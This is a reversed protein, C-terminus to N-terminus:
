LRVGLCPCSFRFLKFPVELPKPTSTYVFRGTKDVFYFFFCYSDEDNGYFSMVAVFLLSKGRIIYGPGDPLSQGAQFPLQGYSRLPRVCVSSFAWLVYKQRM